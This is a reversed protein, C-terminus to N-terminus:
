IFIANKPNQKTAETVNIANKIILNLFDINMVKENLFGSPKLDVVDYNVANYQFKCNVLHIKRSNQSNLQGDIYKKGKDMKGKFNCNAVHVVYNGNSNDIYYISSESDKNVIFDCNNIEIRNLSDSLIRLNSDLASTVKINGGINRIFANNNLSGYKSAM